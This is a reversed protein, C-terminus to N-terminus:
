DAFQGAAQLIPRWRNIEAELHARHAAPTVRELPEPPSALSNLREVVARDQIAVRLAQNLRQIVPQPTGRPAYM